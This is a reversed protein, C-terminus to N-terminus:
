RVKRTFLDLADEYSLANVRYISESEESCHEATLVERTTVIIKSSNGMYRFVEVIKEADEISSIDDLVILCKMRYLLKPLEKILESFGVMDDDDGCTKAAGLQTGLSRLLEELIFPHMVKVYARMQFTESLEKSNYVARVLATKGIGRSGWVSILKGSGKTILQLISHMEIERGILDSEESAQAM